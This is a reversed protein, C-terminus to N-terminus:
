LVRYPHCLLLPPRPHQGPVLDPEVGAEGASRLDWEAAECGVEPLLVPGGEGGVPLVDFGPNSIRIQIPDPNLRTLPDPDLNPIM